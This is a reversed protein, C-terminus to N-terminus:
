RKQNRFYRPKIYRIPRDLRKSTINKPPIRHTNKNKYEVTDMVELVNDALKRLIDYLKSYKGMEVVVANGLAEGVKRLSEAVESKFEEQMALIAKIADSTSTGGPQGSDVEIEQVLTM